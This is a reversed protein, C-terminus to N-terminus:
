TWTAVHRVGGRSQPVARSESMCHRPRALAAAADIAPRDDRVREGTTTTRACPGRCIRWHALPDASVANGSIAFTKSGSRDPDLDGAGRRGCAYRGVHVRPRRSRVRTVGERWLEKRPTSQRGAPARCRARSRPRRDRARDDLCARDHQDTGAVADVSSWWSKECRARAHCPSQGCTTSFQSSSAEIAHSSRRSLAAHNSAFDARPLDLQADSLRRHRAVDPMPM